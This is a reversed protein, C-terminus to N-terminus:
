SRDIWFHFPVTRGCRPCYRLYLQHMVMIGFTPSHDPERIEWKHIGLKCLWSRVPTDQEVIKYDLPENRHSKLWDQIDENLRQVLYSKGAGRPGKIKITLKIM